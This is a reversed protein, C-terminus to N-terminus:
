EVRERTLSSRYLPRVARSLVVVRYRGDALLEEVFFKAVDGAGAIAVAAKQHNEKDM